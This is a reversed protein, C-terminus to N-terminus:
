IWSNIVKTYYLIYWRTFRLNVKLLSKFDVGLNYNGYYHVLTCMGHVTFGVYLGFGSYVPIRYLGFGSYVPIWYLGFGSYVPIWYLGFGSYVPIWYM